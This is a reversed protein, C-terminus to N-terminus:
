PIWGIIKDAQQGSNNDKNDDLNLIHIEGAKNASKPNDEYAIALYSLNKGDDAFNLFNEHVSNTTIQKLNKGQDSITYIEANNLSNEGTPGKSFAMLSNSWDLSYIIEKDSSKYIEHSETGDIKSKYIASRLKNGDVSKVYAIYDNDPSFAICSINFGDNDIKVKNLGNSDSVLLTFGYDKEANSFVTYAIKKGNANVVPALSSAFNDILKTKEGKTTNIFWLSSSNQDKLVLTALINNGDKTMSQTQFIKLSEDQDTFVKKKTGTKLVISYIDTQNSSSTQYVVSGNININTTNSNVSNDATATASADISNKSQNHTNKGFLIAMGAIVVILIFGIFIKTQSKM